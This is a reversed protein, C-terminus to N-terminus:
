GRNLWYGMRSIYISPVSLCLINEGPNFFRSILSLFHQHNCQCQLSFALRGPSPLCHHVFVLSMLLKPFMPSASEVLSIPLALSSPHGFWLKGARGVATKLEDQSNLLYTKPQGESSEQGLRQPWKTAVPKICAEM